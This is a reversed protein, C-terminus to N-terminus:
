IGLDLLEEEKFTTLPPKEEPDRGPEYEFAKQVNEAVLRFLRQLEIDRPCADECLGCGVCSATMHAMRGLHFFLTDTPLKVAGKKNAWDMYDESQFEFTPSEWFCEKCFCIPCQDKCNHCDICNGLFSLLNDVGKVEKATKDRIENWFAARRERIKSIIDEREPPVETKELKLSSVVDEGLETQPIVLLDGKSGFYGLVIDAYSGPVPTQCSRCARRLGSEDDKEVMSWFLDEPKEGKVARDKFENPDFAGFCDIGFLVLNERDIQNFKILEVFARLDCPRLVVGIKEKFPSLRTMKSVQKAVSVQFVPVFPNAREILEKNLVLTPFYSKGSPLEVPLVVGKLIGKDLLQIFFERAKEVISKNGKVIYSM